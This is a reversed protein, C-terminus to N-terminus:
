PSRCRRRSCGYVSESCSCVHRLGCKERASPWPSLLVTAATFGIALSDLGNGGVAVREGLVIYGAWAAALVGLASGELRVDAIAVM